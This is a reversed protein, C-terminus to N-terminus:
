LPRVGRLHHPDLMNIRVAIVHGVRGDQARQTMIGLLSGSGLMYFSREGASTVRVRTAQFITMTVRLLCRSFEYWESM